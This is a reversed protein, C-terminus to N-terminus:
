SDPSRIKIPWCSFTRWYQCVPFLQIEAYVRSGSGIILVEPSRLSRRLEAVIQHGGGILDAEDFTFGIM